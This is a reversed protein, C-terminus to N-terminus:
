GTSHRRGELMAEVEAAYGKDQRYIVLPPLVYVGSRGSKVGEALVLSADSDAFSHVMRIRKPEFGAKSMSGLLSVARAANYVIAMRGRMTLLYAGAALFDDLTGGIEHRALRREPDACLRGGHASRYPPNCIVADFSEREAVRGIARVDEQVITVRRQYGNLQVNRLARQAMREQVEVGMVFVSPYLDALMAAIVGNGSGLDVIKDGQNVTAFYALLVADLSFRYGSRSQCVKLRGHFLTDLTEDRDAVRSVTKAVAVGVELDTADPIKTGNGEGAAGSAWFVKQRENKRM